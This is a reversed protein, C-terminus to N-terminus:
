QIGSPASNENREFTLSMIPRLLYPELKSSNPVRKLRIKLVTFMEVVKQQVIPCLTTKPFEIILRLVKKEHGLKDSHAPATQIPQIKWKPNDQCLKQNVRVVSGTKLVIADFSREKVDVVVCDQIYPQNKEIYHALYLESSAEGARKANYKQKNCNAAVSAVHDINWKPKDSYGLSASLLRHVMIDAYRRIPSTFHTYIPVSLAYHAYEEETDMTAACFYRARTMPKAFVHNLVVGRCLGEFDDTIYKRLSSHIGGSSSIDVHIGCTELCKQAEALMTFKPPEHCRLFAIDPFTESIKRAVSINALLMFEEILRHSEKNEYAIFDLPEGNRPHLSFLLKVQDIRLSGNKVRGERLNIAIKQLVNVTKSLDKATFDNLIKPLDENQFEKHPNEIMQQAHEYALQACSNLVTRAFRTSYVNGQLDMEWFVSFALKDEGPLLSCHLCLEVPLMHYVSDVLYITTGKTSVMEDLETGEPLYYSADSIHVGIEYNGNPLEKVSVADDLDRATLPDITFVCEKRIDERQQLEKAPIEKSKPLYQVMEPPFPTVDLCFEKLIARTEVELGGALGLNEIIVGFAQNPQPWELLKACFLIGEFAKPRTKFGNPLSVSPIKMIPMRKDRPYFLASEPDSPNPKLTGITTRPHVKQLIYVVMACKQGEVEPKLKLVVEDGELATNRDSVSTIQYDSQTSDNNSVYSNKFSKPNIRVFGKVLEGMILGKEVEEQSMMPCFSEQAERAVRKEIKLRRHKERRPWRRKKPSEDSHSVGQTSELSINAEISQTKKHGLSKISSKKLPERTEFKHKSMKRKPDLSLSKFAECLIRETKFLCTLADGLFSRLNIYKHKINRKRFYKGTQPRPIPHIEYNFKTKLSKSSTSPSLSDQQLERSTSRKGITKPSGTHSLDKPIKRAINVPSNIFKPLNSSGIYGSQNLPKFSSPSEGLYGEDTKHKSRRERRRNRKKPIDSKDGERIESKKSSSPTNPNNTFRPKTRSVPSSSILSPNVIGLADSVSIFSRSKQQCESGQSSKNDKEQSKKMIITLKKYVFSWYLLNFILFAVPFVIRSKKDIWNAVEQPSMTTWGQPSNHYSNGNPSKEPVPITTVSDEPNVLNDDSSHSMRITPVSQMSTPFSHVTLYNNQCIQRENERDENLSTCSRTKYLSNCSEARRLQQKRAFSPTVAGRLIYKSSAKKVEVQKKRRWIVNVFAFEAMSCFIFTSCGLFWVESAKIYSVKPLNKTLGGNLTIFSLMTSTGLVTRPASADAQLWFTVWSTVVLFMSPLFYDMIYYGVERRLKFKFTLMSYNGALGGTAFSAPHTGTETWFSDLVFETLHLNRSIQVADKKAWTLQLNTTDYSWSIWTIECIQYDFPFKKLNMWCYFTLTMRYNYQITGDPGIQVFVDKGDLGMLASERENKVTLHPVWIKNRLPEEGQISGRKPSFTDYKLRHDQYGLQVLIYSKMQQADSAEIHTLDIQMEVPLTAPVTPKILRDYRCSDTLKSTFEEQTIHDMEGMLNLPLCSIDVPRTSMTQSITPMETSVSPPITTTPPVTTIVSDINETLAVIPMESSPFATTTTSSNSMVQSYTLHSFLLVVLFRHFNRIVAFQVM